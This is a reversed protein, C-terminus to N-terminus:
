PKAALLGKGVSAATTGSAKVDKASDPPCAQANTAWTPVPMITM